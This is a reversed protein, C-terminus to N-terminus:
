TSDAQKNPPKSVKEKKDTKATPEWPSPGQVFQEGQSEGKGFKLHLNWGKDVLPNAIHKVFEQLAHAPQPTDKESTVVTGRKQSKTPPEIKIQPDPHRTDRAEEHSKDHGLTKETNIRNEPTLTGRTHHYKVLNTIGNVSQAPRWIAPRKWQPKSYDVSKSKGDPLKEKTDSSTTDM